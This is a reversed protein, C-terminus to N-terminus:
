DVNTRSRPHNRRKTAANQELIQNTARPTPQLRGRSSKEQRPPPVEPAEDFYDLISADVRQGVISRLYKETQRLSKHGLWESVRQLPVNKLEMEVAVTHRFVHWADGKPFDEPLRGRLVELMEQLEHERFPFIFPVQRTSASGYGVGVVPEGRKLVPEILQVLERRCVLKRVSNFKPPRTEWNAAHRQREIRCWMHGDVRTFDDARLALAEGKRVGLYRMVALFGRWRVDREAASLIFPWTEDLNRIAVRLPTGRRFPCLRKNVPNGTSWGKGMASAWEYLAHLNDHHLTVTNGSMLRAKRGPLQRLRELWIAVDGPSPQGALGLQACLAATRKMNKQASASHQSFGSWAFYLEWLSSVPQPGVRRDVPVFEGPRISM